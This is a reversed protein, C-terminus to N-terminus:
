QVPRRGVAGGREYPLLMAAVSGLSSFNDARVDEDALSLDATEEIAAALQFLALSTVGLDRLLHRDADAWSGVPIQSGTTVFISHEVVARAEELEM